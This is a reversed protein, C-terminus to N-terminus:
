ISTLNSYQTTPQRGCVIDVAATFGAFRTDINSRINGISATNTVQPARLRCSILEEIDQIM